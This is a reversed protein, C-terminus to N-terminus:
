KKARWNPVAVVEIFTEKPAPWEVPVGNEIAWIGCPEFERHADIFATVLPMRQRREEKTLPVRFVRFWVCRNAVWGRLTWGHRALVAALLAAFVEM